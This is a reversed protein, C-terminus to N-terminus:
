DESLACHGIVIGLPLSFLSWALLLGVVRLPLTHMLTAAAIALLPLGTVLLGTSRGNGTTM